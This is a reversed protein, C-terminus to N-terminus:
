ESDELFHVEPELTVGSQKKVEAIIHEMLQMIDGYRARGRNVLFNAHCESVAADGASCGKLGAEDILQGASKGGGKGDAPNKFFSGANPQTISQRCKRKALLDKMKKQIEERKGTGLTVEIGTIVASRSYTAYAPWKRYSFNLGEGTVMFRKTASQMEVGTIIQSMEGGWAGANMVVAGGVTGPIGACFECGSLGRECCQRALRGLGLGAGVFIKQPNEGDRYPSIKKFGAGLLIIVGAFGDDSVVLNTGKGIVRWRIKEINCFCLIKVLTQYGDAEVLLSAPGGIRLSTYNRLACDSHCIEGFEKKAREVWGWGM